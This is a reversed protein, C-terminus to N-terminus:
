HGVLHISPPMAPQLLSPGIALSNAVFSKLALLSVDVVNPAPCQQVM